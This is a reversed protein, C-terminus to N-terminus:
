VSSTICFNRVIIKVPEVIELFDALMEYINIYKMVSYKDWTGNNLDSELNTRMIRTRCYFLGFVLVITFRGMDCALFWTYNIFVLFSLRVSFCMTSINYCFIMYYFCKVTIYYFLSMKIFRNFCKYVKKASPLNDLGHVFKYALYVFEEKTYFSMLLPVTYDFMSAGTILQLPLKNYYITLIFVVNAALVFLPVLFSFLILIKSAPVNQRFGFFFRIYMITHIDCVTNTTM